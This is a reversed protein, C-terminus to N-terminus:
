MRQRDTSTLGTGPWLGTRGRHVERAGALLWAHMGRIGHSLVRFDRVIRSKCDYPSVFHRYSLRSDVTQKM